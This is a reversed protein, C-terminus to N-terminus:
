VIFCMAPRFCCEASSMTRLNRRASSSVASPLVPSCAAASNPTDGAVSYLQRRAYPPISVSAALSSLSSRSCFARNFRRNASASNSFSASRSTDFPFNQAWGGLAAGHVHELLRQTHRLPQRALRNPQGAGGVTAQRYRLCRRIRISTQPDPQALIGGLVGAMPKAAGPGGQTVVLVTRDVLLLHVPQPALFAQLHGHM